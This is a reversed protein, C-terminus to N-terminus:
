DERAGLELRRFAGMFEQAIDDFFGHGAPRFADLGEGNRYLDEAAVRIEVGLVIRDHADLGAPQSAREFAIIEDGALVIGDSDVDGFAPVRGNEDLLLPLSIGGRCAGFGVLMDNGRGLSRWTEGHAPRNAPPSRED